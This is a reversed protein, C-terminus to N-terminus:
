ECAPVKNPAFNHTKIRALVIADDFLHRRVSGAFPVVMLRVGDGHRKKMVVALADIFAKALDASSLRVCKAWGALKKHASLFCGDKEQLAFTHAQGHAGEVQISWATPQPAARHEGILIKITGM